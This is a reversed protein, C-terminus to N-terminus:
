PTRSSAVESRLGLAALALQRDTWRDPAPRDAWRSVWDLLRPDSLRRARYAMAHTVPEVPRPVYRVCGHLAVVVGLAALARRV